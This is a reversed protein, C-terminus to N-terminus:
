ADSAIEWSLVIALIPGPGAIAGAIADGLALWTQKREM